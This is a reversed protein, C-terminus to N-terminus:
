LSKCVTTDPVVSGDSQHIVAVCVTVVSHLFIRRVYTTFIIANGRIKGGREYQALLTGSASGDRVRVREDLGTAHTVDEKLDAQGVCVTLGTEYYWGYEHAYLDGTYRWANYPATGTCSGSGSSTAPGTVGSVASAPSAAVLSSVIMAAAIFILALLRGSRSKRFENVKM